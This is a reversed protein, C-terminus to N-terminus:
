IMLGSDRLFAGVEQLGRRHVDLLGARRLSDTPLPGAQTVWREINNSTLRSVATMVSILDDRNGEDKQVAALDPSSYTTLDDVNGAYLSARRILCPVCRGCQKNSRKWKGCSVTESAFTKFGSRAAQKAVMEGKTRLEYPNILTVPLGVRDLVSQLSLLFFPHTTRTSLPGIRRPTLPANLAILGNEPIRLQTPNGGRFASRVQAALVGFAIFNFSRTRMSEESPGDWTPHANVSFRQVGDPLRAAIMTQHQADGKYAHSVLLPRCKEDLMDLAAIGSDLGGSFLSVCDVKSVDTIRQRSKIIERLPPTEGGTLFEFEWVDGSLFGLASELDAKVPGWTAPSGLPLVLQFNRSWGNDAADRRVFTDAATVALAISVFDMAASSPQVGFRSAGDRLQNGIAATKPHVPDGGYLFVHIEDPPPSSPVDVSRLHFVLRTM